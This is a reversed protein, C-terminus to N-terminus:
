KLRTYISKEKRSFLPKKFPFDFTLAINHTNGLDGMGSFAYDLTLFRMNLGFGFSFGGLGSRSKQTNIGTRIFFSSDEAMDLMLEGGLNVYYNDNKPWVFDMAFLLNPFPYIAGGIKFKLPLAVAEQDYKLGKGFNQMLISLKYPIYSFKYVRAGMDFATSQAKHFIKSDIYKYAIGISVDTDRDSFETIGKSYALTYVKDQPTFKDYENTNIDTHLISGIDTLFISVGLVSDYSIRQAYSLYQYNIDAIYDTRSLMFSFRQIEMLGAPNSNITSADDAVATQAGGMAIVRPSIDLNLFDGSTVGKAKNSFFEESYIYGQLNFFLTTILIIILM